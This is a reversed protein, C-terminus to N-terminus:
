YKFHKSIGYKLNIKKIVIKRTGVAVDTLNNNVILNCNELILTAGSVINFIPNSSNQKITCDM